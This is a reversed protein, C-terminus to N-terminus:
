VASNGGLCNLLHRSLEELSSAHKWTILGQKEVEELKDKLPVRERFGMTIICTTVGSNKAYLSALELPSGVNLEGDTVVVVQKERYSRRLLKVAEIIADGLASGEGTYEIRSLTAVIKDYNDTPELLPVVFAFFGVLGVRNKSENLAFRAAQGVANLMASLKSPVFSAVPKKMSISLDLVLVVDKPMDM